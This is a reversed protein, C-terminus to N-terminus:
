GEVPQMLDGPYEVGFTYPTRLEADTQMAVKIRTEPYETMDDYDNLDITPSALTFSVNAPQEAQKLKDATLVSQQRIVFKPKDDSINTIQYTVLTLNRIGYVKGSVYYKIQAVLDIYGTQDQGIKAYTGEIIEPYVKSDQIKVYPTNLYNFYNFYLTIGDSSKKYNVYLKMIEALSIGDVDFSVTDSATQSATQESVQPAVGYDFWIKDLFASTQAYAPNNMAATIRASVEAASWGPHPSETFMECFQVGQMARVDAVDYDDPDFVRVVNGEGDLDFQEYGRFCDTEDMTIPVDVRYVADEVPAPDTVDIIFLNSDGFM